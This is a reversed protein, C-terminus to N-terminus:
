IKEKSSTPFLKLQTAYDDLTRVLHLATHPKITSDYPASECAQLTANFNADEFGWRERIARELEDVSANSALGLRRTLWYRFRRYSINVAVSAANAQKYLSGLTRVFELPSLRVERAPISIPGSRRSYTLLIAVAFLAFQLFIWKVPSHKISAALSQRYGHFYEDWLIRTPPEGGVCALFFELNGPEKLGANTLPTASAWWLVEGKGFVYKVVMPKDGDGYLPVAFSESRWYAQPALTIEPAARTISTPSRASLKKWTMGALPDPVIGSEPLFLGVFPGAALM